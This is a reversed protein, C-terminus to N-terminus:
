NIQAGVQFSVSNNIQPSKLSDYITQANLATFFSKNSTPFIKITASFTNTPKLGNVAVGTFANTLSLHISKNPFWELHARATSAAYTNGCTANSRCSKGGWISQIAPGVSVNVVTTSTKILDVGLGTSAHFTDTGVDNLTDYSYRSSAYANFRESLKRSYRLEANGQNTDISNNGKAADRSLEYQAQGKLTFTDKQQKYQAALTVTGGASLAQDTNNGNIGAAVSGTWPRPKKPKLASTKIEIRGLNPHILVTIKDTSEEKVLTGKLRDGNRLILEISEAHAPNASLVVGLAGGTIGANQILYRTKSFVHPM